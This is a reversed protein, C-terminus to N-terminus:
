GLLAAARRPQRHPVDAASRSRRRRVAGALRRGDRRGARRHRRRPPHRRRLAGRAARRRSQRAGRPLDGPHPKRWGFEASIVTVALHRDLGHRALVARATPAHDFNSVLGVRYRDALTAVVDLHGDPLDTFGALHGMHATSLAEAASADAGIRSLARAFRDRSLVERHEPERGAIIDMSVARLAERFDDFAAPDTVAAFPERLWEFRPDPRGRFHVLTGFLDFVVARYRPTVM